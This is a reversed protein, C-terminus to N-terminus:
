NPGVFPGPRVPSDASGLCGHAEAGSQSTIIPSSSLNCSVAGLAERVRVVVELAGLASAENVTVPDSYIGGLVVVILVGFPGISKL